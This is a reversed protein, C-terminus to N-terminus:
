QGRGSKKGDWIMMAADRSHNSTRGAWGTIRKFMEDSLKTNRPAVAIINKADIISELFDAWITSDRKAAGAGERVGAGYKAQQADAKGFWKRKRADEYTVSLNPTNVALHRVKDMAEHIPLTQLYVLTGNETMAFGTKTGPDIGVKIIHLSGEMYDRDIGPYACDKCWRSGYVQTPQCCKVCRSVNEAGSDKAVGPRNAVKKCASYIM